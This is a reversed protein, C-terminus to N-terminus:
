AGFRRLRRLADLAARTQQATTVQAVEPTNQIDPDNEDFLPLGAQQRGMQRLRESAGVGVYSPQASFGRIQESGPASPGGQLKDVGREQLAQFWADWQTNPLSLNRPRSLYDPTGRVLAEMAGRHERARQKLGVGLPDDSTNFGTQYQPNIIDQGYGVNTRRQIPGRAFPRNPSRPM